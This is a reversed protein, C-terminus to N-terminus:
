SPLTKYSHERIQASLCCTRGISIHIFSNHYSYRIAQIGNSNYRSRQVRLISIVYEQNLTSSIIDVPVSYRM